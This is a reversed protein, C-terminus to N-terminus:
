IILLSVNLFSIISFLQIIYNYFLYFSTGGNNRNYNHTNYMYLTYM